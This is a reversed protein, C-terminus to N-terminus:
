ERHTDLRLCWVSFSDKIDKLAAHGLEDALQSYPFEAIKTFGHEKVTAASFRNTTECFLTTAGHEKCIDIQQARLLLGIKKGRYEPLVAIGASHFSSELSAKIHQLYEKEVAVAKQHIKIFIQTPLNAEAPPIQEVHNWYKRTLNTACQGVVEGQYLAMLSINEDPEPLALAIDTGTLVETLPESVWAKAIFKEHPIGTAYNLSINSYNSQIM